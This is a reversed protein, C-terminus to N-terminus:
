EEYVLTYETIYSEPDTGSYLMKKGRSVEGGPLLAKGPLRKALHSQHHASKHGASRAPQRGRRFHLSPCPIERWIFSGGFFVGSFFHMAYNLPTVNPKPSEPEGWSMHPIQIVNRTHLQSKQVESYWTKRQDECTNLTRLM